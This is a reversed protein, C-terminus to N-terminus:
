QRARRRRWMRQLQRFPSRKLLPRDLRYVRKGLLPTLTM